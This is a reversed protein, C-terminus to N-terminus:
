YPRRLRRMLRKLPRAAPRVARMLARGLPHRRLVSRVLRVGSHEARVHDITAALRDLEGLLARESTLRAAVQRDLEATKAEHMEALAALESRDHSAALRAASGLAAILEAPDRGVDAGPTLLVCPRGNLCGVGRWTLVDGLSAEIAPPEEAADLALLVVVTCDPALLPEVNATMAASVLRESIVLADFVGDLASIASLDTEVVSADRFPLGLADARDAGGALVLLADKGVVIDKVDIVVDVVPRTSEGVPAPM